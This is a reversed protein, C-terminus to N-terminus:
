IGLLKTLLLTVFIGLLAGAVAEWLTHVGIRVRYRAVLLALALVLTTVLLNSQLLTVLTWLSFAFAAHGSPMGGLFPTGRHFLLKAVVVLFLVSGVAVFSVHWPTLQLKGVSGELLKKFHGVFLFYGVCLANVASLLVCGAAVDKATRAMPHFHDKTMNIVLEVATNFIESIMVFSITLLLILFEMRSMGTAASFLLVTVAVGIHIRFNRQTKFAYTLGEIANNLSDTLDRKQAM